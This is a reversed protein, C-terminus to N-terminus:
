CMCVIYLGGGVCACVRARVYPHDSNLPVAGFLMLMNIADLFVIYWYRKNERMTPM